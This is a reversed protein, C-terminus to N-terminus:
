ITCGPHMTRKAAIYAAHAEEKTDFCGLHIPRGSKTIQALFSTKGRRVGLLGVKNNRHHTRQNQQNTATSVDRLNQLRNDSRNGNIHDIRNAPWKGHVYFWALRHAMHYSRNIGIRIYGAYNLSEASTGPVIKRGTKKIWTFTGTEPNYHLVSLLDTHSLNTKM